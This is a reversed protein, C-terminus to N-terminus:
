ALDSFSQKFIDSDFLEELAVPRSIHYGQILDVGIITLQELIANSEVFEAITKIEMVHGIQNIAAVMAHDIKNEVMDKVFSGDIKIYDVPLNKLYGFSSLGSGFDDLSFQCGTVKLEDILSKTRQLNIIAAPENIEFCINKADIDYESIKEKVYEPFKESNLSNGSINISFIIDTKYRDGASSIYKFIHDIVLRDVDAMLNYREAAPIFANPATLHGAEDEMRILIEIQKKNGNNLPIIPQAFFRFKVKAIADSMRSAWYMEDNKRIVDSNKQEYVFVRNSGYDKATHCAVDAQTMVESADKSQSTILTIGISAGITYQKDEWTFNLSNIEETIKEAIHTANETPCNVLILGFEDGGTRGLIDGNRSCKELLVTIQKLLEDGAAHGCADNILKFKDLDIFVLAHEKDLNKSDCIHETIQRSFEDRNILGTMSDHTSQHKIIHELRYRETEDHFIIVIGETSNDTNLIPSMSCEIEREIEDKSILTITSKSISIGESLCTDILNVIPERTDQDFINFINKVSINKAGPLSWGTLQEAINNLYEIDGHSNTTIVADGISHLTIQARERENEIDSVLQMNALAMQINTSLQSILQEDIEDFSTDSRFAVIAGFVEDNLEVPTILASKVNFANVLQKKARIDYRVDEILLNKANMMSWACIGGDSMTMKRNKLNEAEDGTAEIFTYDAKSADLTTLSALNAGTIEQAALCTNKFFDNRNSASNILVSIWKDILKLGNQYRSNNQQEIQRLLETSARSAAITIISEYLNTNEIPEDHAIAILGKVNKDNDKLALGIYSTADQIPFDEMHFYQINVDRNCVVRGTELVDNCPSNNINYSINKKYINNDILGAMIAKDPDETSLYSIYGYRVGLSDCVAHLINYIHDDTESTPNHTVLMSLTKETKTRDAVETSLQQNITALEAKNRKLAVFLFGLYIILYISCIFLLANYIRAQQDMDKDISAIRTKIRSLKNDIDLARLQSIMNDMEPLQDIIILSHNILSIIDTSTSKNLEDLIPYVKKALDLTPNNVYELLYISLQSIAQTTTIYQRDLNLIAIEHERSFYILSNQATANYTKFDEIIENQKLVSSKIEVSDNYIEPTNVADITDILTDTASTISTVLRNIHDYQEIQGYRYRLVDRHMHAQLTQLSSLSVVTETFPSRNEISKYIFFVMLLVILALSIIRNNPKLMM